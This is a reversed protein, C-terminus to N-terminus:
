TVLIHFSIFLQIVRHMVKYAGLIVETEILISIRYTKGFDVVM